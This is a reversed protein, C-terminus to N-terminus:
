RADNFVPLEITFTTGQGVESEFTIVGGHDEVIHQALSLGLGTGHTRTTYFPQFIKERIDPPIGKGTDQISVYIRNNRCTAFVGLAGGEPMSQLANQGINLFVQKLQSPDGRLSPLNPDIEISVAVKAKDMGATLIDVTQILVRSLQVEQWNPAARRAFDLVDTIVADLRDVEERIIDAYQAVRENDPAKRKIRQAFGKVATLPNRIEHAVIAAMEGLFALRDKKVLEKQTRQLEQYQRELRDYNQANRIAQSALAAFMVLMELESQSFPECRDRELMIIGVTGEELRMPVLLQSCPFGDTDCPQHRSQYIRPKGEEVVQRLIGEGRDFEALREELNVCGRASLLRLSRSQPSEGGVLFVAGRDPHLMNMAEDIVLDLQPKLQHHANIAIAIRHLASLEDVRVRLAQNASELESTAQRVKQELEENFRQIRAIQRANHIGIAAQNAMLALLQLDDAEIPNQTFRNDVVLVGHVEGSAILPTTAFVKSQLLDRIAPNVRTDNEADEVLYPTQELATQAVIGSSPLLPIRIKLTRQNLESQQYRKVQDFSRLFDHLKLGSSFIDAWIHQCEELNVPGVAMRGELFTKDENVLFLVARNFGLGDGATVGSLIIHLLRELELTSQLAMSVQNLILLRRIIRAQKDQTSSSKGTIELM